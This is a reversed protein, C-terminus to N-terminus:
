FGNPYVVKAFFLGCAAASTSTKRRDKSKIINEFDNVTFKGRGVDIITGVLLRVMNRLFRNATISFIFQSETEKWKALKIKCLHNKVDTHTKSFTTFDDYKYLLEAAKNMLNINLEYPYFAAFRDSTFPNKFKDIYYSYSREIANFRAHLNADVQFIRHFAIDNPLIRNLKYVLQNLSFDIGTDFHLVYNKAHVGADTRGCGVVKIESQLLQFMAGEITEQASIVNPQIQWGHFPTGNFSLIGFYRKM